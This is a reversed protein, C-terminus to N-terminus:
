IDFGMEIIKLRSRQNELYRYVTNHESGNLLLEVAHMAIPLSVSNGIIAVTNGYITISVGTLDEIYKRTRGNKGIIRGKIRPLQNGRGGIIEKLDIIELYEDDDFLKTAHEPSFGRGIAKIVNTISLAMLPDVATEEDHIVVEGETSVDLKIGSVKQLMKKTKGKNGIIAGVRDHPIRVSRM